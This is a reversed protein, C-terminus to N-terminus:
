ATPMGRVRDKPRGHAAIRATTMTAAAHPPPPELAGAVDSETGDSAAGEPDADPARHVVAGAGESIDAHPGGAVEGVSM